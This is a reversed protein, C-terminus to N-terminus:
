IQYNFPILQIGVAMNMLNYKDEAQKSGQIRRTPQKGRVGKINVPIKFLCMSDVM